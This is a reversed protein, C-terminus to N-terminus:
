AHLDRTVRTTDATDVIEALAGALLEGVAVEVLAAVAPIDDDGFRISVEPVLGRLPVGVCVTPRRRGAMWHVFEGAWDSGGFTLAAYGPRASLYVDCHAWDAFDSSDALSRAVERVLLATQRASALRSQDAVAFVPRGAFVDAMAPVWSAAGDVLARVSVAARRWADTPAKEGPGTLVDELLQLAAVALQFQQVATGCEGATPPLLLVDNASNAMASDAGQTVALTRSTGLHRELAAVTEPTGGSASVGVYLTSKTPAVPAYASPRESVADVGRHRLRRVADDAAFGSSGMGGIVVRSPTWGNLLRNAPRFRDAFVDLADAVGATDRRLASVDVIPASLDSIECYQCQVDAFDLIVTM